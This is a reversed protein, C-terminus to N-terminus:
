DSELQRSQKHILDETANYGTSALIHNRVAAEVLVALNRGPAVPLTRQRIRVGLIDQERYSDSSRDISDNLEEPQLARLEIIFKLIKRRRTHAHGYMRAINLIGLGRVELFDQLMPPCRGELTDPAIRSFEPADDAVLIHGRSVLELALESKGVGSEGIILVGTGLVDMLVGHIVTREALDQTLRYRLTNACDNYSCHAVFLAIHHREALQQLTDPPQQGDTVIILDCDALGSEGPDSLTKLWELEARGLLQVRNPHSRNLPGILAPRSDPDTDRSLVRAGGDLGAVWRMDLGFCMADFVRQVTLKEM